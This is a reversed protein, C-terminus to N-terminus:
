SLKDSFIKAIHHCVQLYVKGIDNYDRSSSWHVKFKRTQQLVFHMLITSSILCFVWWARRMGDRHSFLDDTYVLVNFLLLFLHYIDYSTEGGGSFSRFPTKLHFPFAFFLLPIHTHVVLFGFDFWCAIFGAQHYIM